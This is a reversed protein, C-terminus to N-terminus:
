SEWNVVGLAGFCVYVIWMARFAQTYLDIVLNRESPSLSAVASISAGTDGQAIISGLSPGLRDILTTRHKTM